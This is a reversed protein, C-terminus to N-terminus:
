PWSSAFLCFIPRNDAYIQIMIEHKNNNNKNIDAYFSHCGMTGCETPTWRITIFILMAKKEWQAGLFDDDDDCNIKLENEISLYRYLPHIKTKPQQQQQLFDIHLCFFFLLLLVFKFMEHYNANLIM